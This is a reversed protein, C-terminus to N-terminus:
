AMGASRPVLDPVVPSGDVVGSLARDIARRAKDPASPMLHTYTRLTFGPDGHGLYEALTRIDVGDALLTSAYTHRLAHFGHERSEVYGEGPEPEPIVGAAVLAPKWLNQNVYNRNCAKKERSTFILPVAVDKGRQERWPLTVSLAPFQQLHRSLRLSVSQPLPVDREKGGKPPAFVLRAGVMKVQRRVHINLRLWDIDDVGLGLAEGQRLGLGSGLDVLAQYRPPLGAQVADVREITWPIVRKKDAAPPKVSDLRCPNRTILGDDFAASLVSSLNAFITRVYNAALPGALGKAWAQIISPRQALARLEHSGLVPYVHLRLRLEVAERTSADFTQAALWAEGYTRLLIKGAEADIYTGRAVDTRVAADRREADPKREFLEARPQGAPDTYRVRWRKGRGHRSSPLSPGPKGDPRDPGRKKLFWLDDVAM